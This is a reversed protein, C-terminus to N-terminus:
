SSGQSVMRMPEQLARARPKRSAQLAGCGAHLAHDLVAPLLMPQHLETDETRKFSDVAPFRQCQTARALERIQSCGAAAIDGQRSIEDVRCACGGVEAVHIQTTVQVVVAVEIGPANDGDGSELPLLQAAM